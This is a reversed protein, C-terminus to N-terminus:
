VSRINAAIANVRDMIEDLDMNMLKRDRVLVRGGVIVDAVDSGKAAYVLHSQPHFMPVLHPRHTDIIIVDAQKGVELSGIIHDRGIVRAADITAMKLIMQANMVTPNLTNAKHLKAATDMEQFLDLTNNSACGDTGLGIPIGYKAMKELSAIGSALKMNSQPNHSVKSKRKAIIEIDVQDLWVCHVLLSDEDLIGLNDLYQVPTVKQETLFQDRERKTEAVHIQFLVGSDRAAFKARSLTEASCTYPAHCFISPDILASRGAWRNVYDCAAEINDLPDPIGPAPFDIVGQGLIARLGFDNVARAVEDELFYGDCCTTTGALVMEACALLSASYVNEPTIHRSEAPFIIKNLWTDLPLDDALGRFLTMPLHTHTNILGPLIIGGGADILNQDAPWDKGQSPMVCALKGDRIGIVGNDIIEFQSNVTVITGNHIVLDYPM